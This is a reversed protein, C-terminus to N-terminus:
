PWIEKRFENSRPVLKVSNDNTVVVDIDIQADILESYHSPRPRPKM